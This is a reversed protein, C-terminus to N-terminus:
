NESAWPNRATKTVDVYEYNAPVTPFSAGSTMTYVTCYPMGWVFKVSNFSPIMIISNTAPDPLYGSDTDGHIADFCDHILDDGVFIETHPTRMCAWDIALYPKYGTLDFDSLKTGAEQEESGEPQIACSLVDNKRIKSTDVYITVTSNQYDVLVAEKNYNRYKTLLVVDTSYDVEGGRKQSKSYDLYCYESGYVTKIGQLSQDITFNGAPQMTYIPESMTAVNQLQGYEMASLPVGCYSSSVGSDTLATKQSDKMFVINLYGNLSDFVDQRMSFSWVGSTAGSNEAVGIDEKKAEPVADLLTTKADAGFQDAFEKDYKLSDIDSATVGNAFDVDDFVGGILNIEDVEDDEIILKGVKSKQATPTAPKDAVEKGNDDFEVFTFEEVGEKLKLEGIESKKEGNELYLTVDDEAEIKDITCGELFLPLADDGLKDFKEDDGSGNESRERAIARRASTGITISANRFNRLTVNSSVSPSVIISLNAVNNGDVTLAKNIVISSGSYNANLTVTTGAAAADIQSQFTTGTPTAPEPESSNSCGAFITAFLVMSLIALKAFSIKKM